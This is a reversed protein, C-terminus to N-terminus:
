SALVRDILALIADLPAEDAEEYRAGPGLGWKVLYGYSGDPNAQVDIRAAPGQWEVQLGGDAFPSSTVPVVGVCGHRDQAAAAVVLYCAAATAPATPPEAGEGDWDVSLRTMDAIRQLAPLLLSVPTGARADVPESQRVGTDRQALVDVM